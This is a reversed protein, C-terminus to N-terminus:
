LDERHRSIRPFLACTGLNPKNAWLLYISNNPTNHALVVPLACGAYGYIVDKGGKKLHSDMIAPDYYKNLLVDFDPESASTIQVGHNLLYVQTVQCSPWSPLRLTQLRHSLNKIALETAVYLVVYVKAGDPAILPPERHQLINISEMARAIKGKVQGEEERLLTDSSGSFDNLLFM